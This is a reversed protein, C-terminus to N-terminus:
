FVSGVPWLHAAIHTAVPLSCLLESTDGTVAATMPLHARRPTSRLEFQLTHGSVRLLFQFQFEKQGKPSAERETHVHKELSVHSPFHDQGLKSFIM